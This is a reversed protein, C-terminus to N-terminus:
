CVSRLLIEHSSGVELEFDKRISLDKTEEVLEHGLFGSGLLEGVLLGTQVSGARCDLRAKGTFICSM